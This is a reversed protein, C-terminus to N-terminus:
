VFKIVNQSQSALVQFFQSNKAREAVTSMTTRGEVDMRVKRLRDSSAILFFFPPSGHELDSADHCSDYNPIQEEAKFRGAAALGRALFFVARVSGRQTKQASTQKEKRPDRAGRSSILRGCEQPARGRSNSGVQCHGAM